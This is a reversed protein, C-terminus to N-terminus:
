AAVRIRAVRVTVANLVWAAEACDVDSDARVTWYWACSMTGIWALSFNVVRMTTGGVSFIM